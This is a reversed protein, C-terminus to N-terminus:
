KPMFNLMSELGGGEMASSMQNMMIAMAKPDSTIQKMMAEIEEPKFQSMVKQGLELPNVKTSDVKGSDLDRKLNQAAENVSSLVNSPIFKYLSKMGSFRCLHGIYTWLTDQTSKSSTSFKEKINIAAVLPHECLRWLTEEDKKSLGDLYDEFTANFLDLARVPELKKFEVLAIQLLVDEPWAAISAEILQSAMDSFGTEMSSQIGDM